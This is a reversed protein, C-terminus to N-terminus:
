TFDFISLSSLRLSIPTAINDMRSVKLKSINLLREIHFLKVKKIDLGRTNKSLVEM